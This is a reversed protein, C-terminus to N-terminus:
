RGTQPKQYTLQLRDTLNPRFSLDSLMQGDIWIMAISPYWFMLGTDQFGSGLAKSQTETQMQSASALLKRSFIM